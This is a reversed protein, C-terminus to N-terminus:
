RKKPPLSGKKDKEISANLENSLEVMLNNMKVKSATNHPSFMAYHWIDGSKGVVAYYEMKEKSGDKYNISVNAIPKKM